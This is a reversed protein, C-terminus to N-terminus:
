ENFCEINTAHLCAFLAVNEYIEKDKEAKSLPLKSNVSLHLATLSPSGSFKSKILKSDIESKNKDSSFPRLPM